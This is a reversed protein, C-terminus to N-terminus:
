ADLKEEEFLQGVKTMNIWRKIRESYRMYLNCDSMENAEIAPLNKPLVAKIKPINIGYVDLSKEKLREGFIKSMIDKNQYAGAMDEIHLVFFDM